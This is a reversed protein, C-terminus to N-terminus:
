GAAREGMALFDGMDAPLGSTWVLHAGNWELALEASHLAHRPLLLREALAPTWGTRIFELYCDPSPGYLKDGVVPHGCHSLHVRIQHTRGTLPEASVLAFRGERREIRALVRFRTRAAAGSPHVARMLHIDSAAVEGLRIIPAESEFRGEPWGCVIALYSKKIKGEQM